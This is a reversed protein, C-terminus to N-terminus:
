QAFSRLRNPLRSTERVVLEVDLATIGATPTEPDEISRIMQRAAEAGIERLPQRVTTLPVEVPQVGEVRFPYFLEYQTDDFGVVAVDEPVRVGRSELHKMALFANIDHSFAIASPPADSELHKLAVVALEETDYGATDAVEIVCGEPSTDEVGERMGRIREKVSYFDLDRTTALYLIRRHGLVALHEGLLLGGQFHNSCVTPVQHDRWPFDVAILRTRTSLVEELAREVDPDLWVTVLLLGEVQFELFRHIYEVKKLGSYQTCGLLCQYGRSSTEREFAEAIPAAFPNSLLDMLIGLTKTRGGALQYAALNRRYGLDRAIKLIQQAAEEGVRNTTRRNNLVSSVTNISFGSLRAVDKLTVRDSDRGCKDM